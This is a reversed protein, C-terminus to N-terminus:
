YIGIAVWNYNAIEHAGTDENIYYDFGTKTINYPLMTDDSTNHRNTGFISTVIVIDNSEIATNFNIHGRDNYRKNFIKGTRIQYNNSSLSDLKYM